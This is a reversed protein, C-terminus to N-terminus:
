CVQIAISTGLSSQRAATVAEVVVLEVRRATMIKRLAALASNGTHAMMDLAMRVQLRTKDLANGVVAVAVALQMQGIQAQLHKSLPAQEVQAAAMATKAVGMFLTKSQAAAEVV